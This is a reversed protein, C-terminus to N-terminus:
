SGGCGGCGGGGCGGGGGGGGGSDGSGCGGASSERERDRRNQEFQEHLPPYAPLIALGFIGAVLAMEGADSRRGQRIMRTLGQHSERLWELYRRGDRTLRPAKLLLFAAAAYFAMMLILFLVNTRGRSLAVLLKVLGLGPIALLTMGLITKLGTRQPQSPVLGQRELDGETQDLESRLAKEVLGDAKPVPQVAGLAHLARRESPSLKAEDESRDASRRLEGDRVELLGATVLRGLVARAAEQRGGRLIAIAYAEENRPYYGPKWRLDGSEFRRNGLGRLLGALALGALGYLLYFRLFEPGTMDLPNM